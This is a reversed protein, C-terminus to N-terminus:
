VLFKLCTETKLEAETFNNEKMWAKGFLPGYWVFGVTLTALAAVIIPIINMEM